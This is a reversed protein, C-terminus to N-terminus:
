ILTHSLTFNHEAKFLIAIQWPKLCIWYVNEDTPSGAKHKNLFQEFLVLIEPFKVTKKRGGGERRQRNSGVPFDEFNTTLERRGQIITNRNVKLVKAIYSTGGRGLKLSEIAAYHRRDKESLSCYHLLMLMETKEPFVEIMKIYRQNLLPM